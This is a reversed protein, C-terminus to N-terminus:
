KEKADKWKGERILSKGDQMLQGIERKRVERAADIAAQKAEQQWQHIKLALLGGAIVVLVLTILLLPPRKKPGTEAGWVPRSRRSPPPRRPQDVTSIAM